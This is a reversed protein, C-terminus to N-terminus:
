RVGLREQLGAAMGAITLLDVLEGIPNVLWKRRIPGWACACSSGRLAWASAPKWM